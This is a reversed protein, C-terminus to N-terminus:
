KKNKNKNKDKGKEQKLAVLSSTTKPRTTVKPKEPKKEAM